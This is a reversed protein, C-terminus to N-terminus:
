PLSFSIGGQADTDFQMGHPLFTVFLGLALCAGAFIMERVEVNRSLLPFFAAVKGAARLGVRGKVQLLMRSAGGEQADM